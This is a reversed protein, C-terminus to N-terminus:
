TEVRFLPARSCIRTSYRLSAISFDKLLSWSGLLLFLDESAISYSALNRLPRHQSAFANSISVTIVGKISFAEVSHLLGKGRENRYDTVGAGEGM